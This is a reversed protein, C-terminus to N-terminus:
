VQRYFRPFRLYAAQCQYLVQMAERSVKQIALLAGDLLKLTAKSILNGGDTSESQRAARPGVLSRGHIPPRCCISRRLGFDFKSCLPNM